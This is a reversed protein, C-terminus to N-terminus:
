SSVESNRVITMALMRLMMNVVDDHWDCWWWITPFHVHETFEPWFLNPLAPGQIKKPWLPKRPWQLIPDKNRRTRAEIQLLQRCFTRLVTTLAKSASSVQWSVTVKPASKSFLARAIHLLGYPSISKCLIRSAFWLRPADKSKHPRTQVAFHARSQLFLETQCLITDFGVTGSCKQFIFDAFDNIWQNVWM